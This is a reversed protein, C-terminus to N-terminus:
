RHEAFDVADAIAGRTTGAYEGWCRQLLETFAAKNRADLGATPGAMLEKLSRLATLGRHTGALNDALDRAVDYAADTMSEM